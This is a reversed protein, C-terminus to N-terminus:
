VGIIEIGNASGAIGNVSWNGGGGLRPPEGVKPMREPADEGASRPTLAPPMPDDRLLKCEDDPRGRLMCCRSRILANIGGFTICSGARIPLVVIGFTGLFKICVFTFAKRDEREAAPSLPM